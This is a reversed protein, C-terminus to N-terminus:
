KKLDGGKKYVLSYDPDDSELSPYLYYVARRHDLSLTEIGTIKYTHGGGLKEKSQKLFSYFDGGYVYSRRAEESKGIMAKYDQFDGKIFLDRFMFGIWLIIWIIFVAEKTKIKNINM